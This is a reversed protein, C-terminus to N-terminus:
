IVLLDTFHKHLAM